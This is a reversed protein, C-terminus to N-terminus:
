LLALASNLRALTEQKEIVSAITFPDPSRDKGSLSFRMPHLVAGRAPLTDAYAMVADKVSTMSWEHEPIIELIRIVAELHTKTEAAETKKFNIKEAPVQPASFYFDFEGAEAMTKVDAFKEIHDIITPVLTHIKTVSFNPLSKINEPLYKLINEEQEEYPLKKMYERNFWNLKEEGFMAGGKQVRDLEFLNILEDKSFIEQDGGPNWGVLTVCNFVAEPLYGMERYELMAPAGRRKSLKLKDAGLVLPLHAYTPIDWGLAEFIAIQRPTNALHEEARIVHTVGEDHDDIVNALHFVPEDMTRAIIFDGLDTIDITVDGRILDHVTISKNPNKFRILEKDGSGDKAPEKSVYAHGSDILIGIIEKHRALNHSQYYLADYDLGLWALSDIIQADSGEKNRATDTDEIRLIFKGGNHRAFLWSFMASRYSGAHAAGTPSPAFRAVINPNKNM